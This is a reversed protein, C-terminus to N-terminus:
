GHKRRRMLIFLLALLSAVIFGLGPFIFSQYDRPAIAVAAPKVEIDTISLLDSLNAGTISVTATFIGATLFRGNSTYIGPHDKLPMFQIKQGDLEPCELEIKADTIAKNNIPNSLFLRFIASQSVELAPYKLLLEVTDTVVEQTVLNDKTLPLPPVKEGEHVHGEHAPALVSFFLSLAWVLSSTRM